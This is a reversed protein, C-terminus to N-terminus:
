RKIAELHHLMHPIYDEVVFGLTVINKEIKSVDVTKQLAETPINEVVNVIQYNLFKWLQIIEDHNVQQYNQAKLWFDQEYVINENEKYQTVIFRRLNTIASDCLHGLIEKKSWRNESPKYNWDAESINKFIELHEDIIYKLNQFEM